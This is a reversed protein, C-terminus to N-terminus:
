FTYRLGANITFSYEEYQLTRNGFDPSRLVARFPEDTVNIAEFIIDLQDVVRYKATVDLSFHDDVWRDSDGDDSLEELYEDRYAGAVRVSFPGKEYGLVVNFLNESTGPLAIKRGNHNGESDVYTYNAGLLLGDFPDPLMTLAQQYNFEFGLVEADSGNQPIVGEDVFIGNFDFDEFVVPLIFDKIDKYFVAAQLVANDAFYWEAGADFNWARYPKLEPNGFEGEREDDENQEVLFRPALDAINPRVLSRYAAARLVLEPMADFRANVSPLWETYDRTFRVPAVFTTDESVTVGNFTAGEEVFDVQNGRIDNDTNEMRVGAILRLADTDIRGLLYAAYIDEEVRFEAANSEFESEAVNREFDSLDGLVDRVADADPVPNIANFPYDVDHAVGSLLFDGAGNYGDFIDLVLGYEKDRWRGRGGAKVQAQAGALDFERAIDLKVGFEDDVALGDVREVSDFEYEAADSYLSVSGADVEIRPIDSDLEFQTIALEGEEFDRAFTTPDFTDSEDEESRSYSGSYEVTWRDFHSEGGAVVSLIDQTENRDKIAREVGIEEDAGLSFDAQTADGSVPAADGFDLNLNSRYEQDEFSNYVGRVFLRSDETPVFDLGLTGGIRTRTVDYDRMEISEAYVVGGDETWDDAEINETAFHRDYYSFGAAIGFSDSLQTSADVGFKPSVEDNQDNYSGLGTVSLFPGRREFAGTTRIDIAGGIADADMDPTLSKQVQISEVLEAAVVDLAVARIDSEPAPVRVGNLSSSNLNPDLGRLVIFRGEGQDNQVSVGAVRRVAESVNQDPFQGIADRTLYSAAIDSSRQMSLAGAQQARQGVVIVEELREAQPPLLADLQVTGTEGVTITRRFNAAGVYRVVATYNGAPVGNIRFTGDAGTATRRNAGELVIEAGSLSHKGTQDAVRGILDGAAVTGAMALLM